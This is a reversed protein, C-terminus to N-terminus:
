CVWVQERGFMEKLTSIFTRNASVRHLKSHIVTEEGNQKIHFLLHCAGAYRKCLGEVEDLQKTSFLAPDFRVHVEKSYETQADEIPIVRNVLIKVDDDSRKSIKGEVFVLSDNNL